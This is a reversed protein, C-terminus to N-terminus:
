ENEGYEISKFKGTLVITSGGVFIIEFNGGLITIVAISSKVKVMEKEFLIIGKHNEITIENNSVVTIKPIDMIVERPIDLKNALRETANQLKNNM